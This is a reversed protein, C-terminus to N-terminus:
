GRGKGKQTTLNWNEGLSECKHKRVSTLGFSLPISKDRKIRFGPKLNTHTVGLEVLIFIWIWCVIPLSVPSTWQSIEKKWGWTGSSHTNCHEASFNWFIKFWGPNHFSFFKAYLIHSDAEELTQSLYPSELFYLLQGERFQKRKMM